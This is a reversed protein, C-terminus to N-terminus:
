RMQGKWFKTNQTQSEIEDLEMMDLSLTNVPKFADISLNQMSEAVDQLDKEIQSLSSDKAYLCQNWDVATAFLRPTPSNTVRNASYLIYLGALLAAIVAAACGRWMVATRRRRHEAERRIKEQIASVAEQRVAPAPSADFLRDAEAFDDAAQRARNDDMFQRLLQELKKRKM